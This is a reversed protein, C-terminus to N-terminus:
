VVPEPERRVRKRRRRPESESATEEFLAWLRRAEHNIPWDGTNEHEIAPFHWPKLALERGIIGQMKWWEDCAACVPERDPPCTCQTELVRLRRFAELAAATIQVGPRRAIPTRRTGSM